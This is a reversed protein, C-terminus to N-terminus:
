FLYDLSVIVNGVYVGPKAAAAPSVTGGIWVYITPAAGAPFRALGITNPNFTAAGAPDNTTARWRAATNNFLIPMTSGPLAQINTLLAPLTFQILFFANANGQVQWQGANSSTPAVTTAIGLPVSGFNLQRLTAISMGVGIVEADSGISGTQARAVRVGAVLLATAVLALARRRV